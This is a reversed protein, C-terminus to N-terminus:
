LKGTTLYEIKEELDKNLKNQNEIVQGLHHILKTQNRIIEQLDALRVVNECSAAFTTLFLVSLVLCLMPIEVYKKFTMM